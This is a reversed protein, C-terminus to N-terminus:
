PRRLKWIGEAELVDRIVRVLKGPACFPRVDENVMLDLYRQRYRIEVDTLGHWKEPLPLIAKALFQLRKPLVGLEGTRTRFLERWALSTVWTSCSTSEFDREGM